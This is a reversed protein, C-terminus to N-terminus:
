AVLGEALPNVSSREVSRLYADIHRQGILVRAGVQYYGLKKAKLLRHVSIEAIGLFGAADKKSFLRESHTANEM